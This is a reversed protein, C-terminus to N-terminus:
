EEHNPLRQAVISNTFLKAASAHALDEQGIVKGQATLNGELEQGIQECAIGFSYSAELTLGFEEGREIM